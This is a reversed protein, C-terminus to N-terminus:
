GDQTASKKPQIAAYKREATDLLFLSAVAEPGGRELTRRFYKRALPGLADKAQEVNEREERLEDNDMRRAAIGWGLKWLKGVAQDIEERDLTAESDSADSHGPSEGNVDPAPVTSGDLAPGSRKLSEAVEAGPKGTMDIEDMM